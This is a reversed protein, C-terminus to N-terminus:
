HGEHSIRWELSCGGCKHWSNKIFMNSPVTYWVSGSSSSMWSTSVCNTPSKVSCYQVRLMVERHSGSKITTSATKGPNSRGGLSRGVYRSNFGSFEIYGDHLVGFDGDTTVQATSTDLIAQGSDASASVGNAGAAVLIAVAGVTLARGMRGRFTTM